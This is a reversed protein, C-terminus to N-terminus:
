WLSFNKNNNLDVWRRHIQCQRQKQWQSLFSQSQITMAPQQTERNILTSLSQILKCGSHWILFEDLLCPRRRNVRQLTSCDSARNFMIQLNIKKATEQKAGTFHGREINHDIVNAFLWFPPKREGTQVSMNKILMMGITLHSRWDM